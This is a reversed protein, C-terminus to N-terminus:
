YNLKLLDLINQWFFCISMTKRYPEELKVLNALGAAKAGVYPQNSFIFIVLNKLCM